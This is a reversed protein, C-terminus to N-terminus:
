SCSSSVVINPYTARSSQGDNGSVTVLLCDLEPFDFRVSVLPLHGVEGGEDLVCLGDVDDSPTRSTRCAM